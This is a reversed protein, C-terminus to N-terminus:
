TMHLTLYEALIRINFNLYKPLPQNLNEFVRQCLDSCHLTVDKKLLSTLLKEIQGYKPLFRRYYGSWELFSKIEKQYTATPFELVCIIKNPDPKAGEDTIIHGLYNVYKLMFFYKSSWDKLKFIRLQNFVEQLKESHDEIIHAYKLIDDTYIFIKLRNLGILVLNM